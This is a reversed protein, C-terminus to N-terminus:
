AYYASIQSLADMDSLDDTCISSFDSRQSWWLPSEMESDSGCRDTDMVMEERFAELSSVDSGVEAFRWAAIVPGGDGTGKGIELRHISPAITVEWAQSRSDPLTVRVELPNLDSNYAVNPMTLDQERPPSPTPHALIQEIKDPHGRTFSSHRYISYESFLEETCEFGLVELAQHVSCVRLGLLAEIRSEHAQNIAFHSGDEIWSLSHQETGDELCFYLRELFDRWGDHVRRSRKMKKNSHESEERQRRGM